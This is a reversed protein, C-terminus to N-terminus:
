RQGKPNQPEASPTLGSSYTIESSATVRPTPTGPLQASPDVALFRAQTREPCQQFGWFPDDVLDWRVCTGCHDCGAMDQWVDRYEGTECAKNM